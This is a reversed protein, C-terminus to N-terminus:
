RVHSGEGASRPRRVARVSGADLTLTLACRSCLWFREVEQRSSSRSTGSSRREFHFLRGGSLYLFPARCEPNACRTVM